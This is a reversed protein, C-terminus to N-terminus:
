RHLYYTLRFIIIDFYYNGNSVIKYFHTKLYKFKFPVHLNHSNLFAIHKKKYENYLEKRNNKKALRFIGSLSFYMECYYLSTLDIMLENDNFVRKQECILQEIISIFSDQLNNKYTNVISNDRYVHNYLCEDVSTIRPCHMILKYNFLFDNGRLGKGLSFTVQNNMIFEKKYLKNWSDNMYYKRCLSLYGDVLEPQTIQINTDSKIVWKDIVNDKKIMNTGCVCIDSDTENIKKYMLSLYQMDLYDDSDIFCVYKGKSKNLAYQRSISLGKNEQYYYRLNIIKAYRECIVRTGDISGDDILVVEYDKFTQNKISEFLSILYKESNYSAICITIIENYAM